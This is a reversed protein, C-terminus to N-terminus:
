IGHGAQLFSLPFRLCTESRPSEAQLQAYLTKLEALQKAPPVALVSVGM